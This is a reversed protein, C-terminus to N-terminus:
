ARYESTQPLNLRDTRGRARGVSDVGYSGKNVWAQAIYMTTTDYVTYSQGNKLSIRHGRNIALEVEGEKFYEDEFEEEAATEDDNKGETEAAAEAGGPAPGGANLTAQSDIPENHTGPAIFTLGAARLEAAERERKKATHEGLGMGREVVAMLRAEHLFDAIARGNKKKSFQMQVIADGVTKGAIQRALPSLKKMSTRWYESKYTGARETRKIVEPKSLRGRRRVSQMVMKREWRKRTTPKPDLKMAMHEPDRRLPRRLPVGDTAPTGESPPQAEIDRLLANEAIHPKTAATRRQCRQCTWPAPKSTRSFFSGLLEDILVSTAHSRSVTGAGALPRLPLTLPM